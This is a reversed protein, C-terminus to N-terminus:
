RRRSKNVKTKKSNIRNLVLYMLVIVVVIAIIQFKGLFPLAVVPRGCPLPQTSSVCLPDAQSDGSAVIQVNQYGNVCQDTTTTYSCTTTTGTLPNQEPRKNRSMKCSSTQSDWACACIINEGNVTTGCYYASWLKENRVRQSSDNNCSLQTNYSSCGIQADNDVICGVTGSVSCKFGVPCCDDTTGAEKDLGACATTSLTDSAKTIFGNSIEYWTAGSTSCQRQNFLNFERTLSSQLNQSEFKVKLTINKKGYDAFGKTGTVKGVGYESALNVNGEKFTWNFGLQEYGKQGGIVPVSASPTQSCAPSAQTSSPCKGQVCTVTTTCPSGTTVTNIVYSNAASYDVVLNNNQIAEQNMPKEIGVFLTYGSPNALTIERTQSNKAGRSDTVELTVTKQGSSSYAHSTSKGTGTSSDGFKWVENSIADDIDYSSHSFSVSNGTYYISGASPSSIVAVPPANNVVDSITVIESEKESGTVSAKFYYNGATSITVDTKVSDGTASIVKPSISSCDNLGWKDRCVTFTIQKGSLGTGQAIMQLTDQKDASTIGVNNMNLWSASDIKVIIPVVCTGTQCVLGDACGYNANCVGGAGRLCDSTVSCENTGAGSVLTCQQNVCANHNQPTTDTCTNTQCTLGNVCQSTLTCSSGSDGLCSETKTAAAGTCGPPSSSILTNTRQGNSCTGTSYSTSTCPNAPVPLNFTYTAILPNNGNNNGSADKGIAYAYASHSQGDQFESPVSFGYNDKNTGPYVLNATTAFGPVNPAGATGGIYVHVDLPCGNYTPSVTGSCDNDQTWGRLVTGEIGLNGGIPTRDNVSTTVCVGNTCQLGAGCLLTNTNCTGGSGVNNNICTGDSCVLNNNCKPTNTGCADGPNNGAPVTVTGSIVNFDYRGTSSDGAGFAECDPCSSYIIYLGLQANGPITYSCAGGGHSTVEGTSCTYADNGSPNKVTITGTSPQYQCVKEFTNAEYDWNTGDVLNCHSAMQWTLTVTQGQSYDKPGAYVIFKNNKSTSEYASGGTLDTATYIGTGYITYTGIPANSPINWVFSGTRSQQNYSGIVNNTSDYIRIEMYSFDYDTGRCIANLTAGGGECIDFVQSPASWAITVSGGQQFSYTPIYTGTSTGGGGGGGGGGFALVLSTTFIILLLSLEFVRKKIM